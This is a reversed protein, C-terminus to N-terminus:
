LQLRVGVECSFGIGVNQVITNNVALLVQRMGDQGNNTVSNNSAVLGSGFGDLVATGVIGFGGNFRVVNHDATGSGAVFIGHQANARVTCNTIIADQVIIGGGVDSVVSQNAQSSIGANNEVHQLLHAAVILVRGSLRIM